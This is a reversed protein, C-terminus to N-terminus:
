SRGLFGKGQERDQDGLVEDITGQEQQEAQDEETGAFCVQVCQTLHFDEAIAGPVKAFDVPQLDKM